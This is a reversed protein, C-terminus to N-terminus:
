FHERRRPSFPASFTTAKLRGIERFAAGFRMQVLYLQKERYLVRVTDRELVLSRDDGAM